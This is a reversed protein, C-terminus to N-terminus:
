RQKVITRGWNQGLVVSERESTVVREPRRSLLWASSYDPLPPELGGAEAMRSASLRDFRESMAPWTLALRIGETAKAYFPVVETLSM